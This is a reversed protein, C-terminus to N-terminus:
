KPKACVRKEDIEGVSRVIAKGSERACNLLAGCAANGSRIPVGADLVVECRMMARRAEEFLEPEIATFAEQAFVRHALAKAVACDVDNDLLIGADFPIGRRQLARMHVTGTGAGCVVFVRPEGEPPALEVSGFTVDYHGREIDYLAAIFEETFVEEPAGLRAIRGDKVCMVQSAIKEALDIEHLSLIIAMRQERAMDLLSHLLELKYRVDLYSTPEDLVLVEPEQCLARALLVRQRQGDSLRSFAKDALSEAHVRRLASYVAERDQDSLTGFRGTYPYRGAAAVDFCTMLEPRIRETLVVSMRRALALANMSKVDDKGIYVTGAIPEIQRTISSLITTKGAGNPGILVLIEGARLRVDIDRILPKGGYGVVLADARFVIEDM